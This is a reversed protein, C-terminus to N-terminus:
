FCVCVFVFVFLGCVCVCVFVRVCFCDFAVVHVCVGMCFIMGSHVRVCTFLWLCPSLCSVSPRMCLLLRLRLCVYVYVCVCISM